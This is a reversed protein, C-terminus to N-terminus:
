LSITVHGNGDSSVRIPVAGTAAAAIVVPENGCWAVLVRDGPQPDQGASIMYDGDPIAVQLSDPTMSLNANIIGLEVVIGVASKATKQMRKNLTEGLRQLNNSM